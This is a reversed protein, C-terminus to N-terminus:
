ELQSITMIEWDDSISKAVSTIVSYALPDFGSKANQLSPKCSYFTESESNVTPIDSIHAVDKEVQHIKVDPGKNKIAPHTLVGKWNIREKENVTLMAKILEAVDGSVQAPFSLPKKNINDFREPMTRGSWPYGHFLMEYLLIGASWIDCKESYKDGNLIEPAMYPPTGLCHSHKSSKGKKEEGVMKSFGFDALRIEGNHLLINEPKIDRHMLIVGGDLGNSSSMAEAVQRIVTLAETETLFKRNKLLHELTGQNCFSMVIYINETRFAKELKVFYPHEIMMLNNIERLFIEKYDEYIQLTEKRIIKIAVQDGNETNIGKYVAAFAGEGLLDSKPDYIYKDVQKVLEGPTDKSKFEESM